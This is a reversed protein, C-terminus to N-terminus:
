LVRARGFDRPSAQPTAKINVAPQAYGAPPVLPTLVNGHGAISADQPMQPERQRECRERSPAPLSEDVDGVAGAVADVDDIGRGVLHHLLDFADLRGMSDRGRGVTRPDIDAVLGVAREVHEVALAAGQELF